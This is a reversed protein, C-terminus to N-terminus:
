AANKRLAATRAFRALAFEDAAQQLARAADSRRDERFNEAAGEIARLTGFREMAQDRLQAIEGELRVRDAALRDREAKARRLYHHTPLQWDDGAEALERRVQDFLAAQADEVAGLRGNAQGISSRVADLDRQQARVAGDYPTKM